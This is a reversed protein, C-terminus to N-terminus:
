DTPAAGGCRVLIDRDVAQLVQELASDFSAKTEGDGSAWNAGTDVGRYSQEGSLADGKIYRIHLVVSTSKQTTISMIYAQVIDASLVLRSEQPGSNDVIQIRSDRGLSELGSRVWAAADVARVPRTGITGMAHPDSRGDRIDTLYVSCKGRSSSNAKIEAPWSASPPTFQSPLTIPTTSSCAVLSVLTAMTMATLIIWSPSAKRL